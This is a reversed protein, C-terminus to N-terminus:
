NSDGSRWLSVLEEQRALMAQRQEPSGDRWGLLHLVGHAVLFEVEETPSIDWEQARERAHDFSIALDGGALEDGYPFSMIDTPEDIGMFQRHLSQLEADSMLSVAIEWDGAAAESQLILLALGRLAAEDALAEARADVVLSFDLTLPAVASM